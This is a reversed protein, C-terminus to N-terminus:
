TTAYWTINAGSLTAASGWYFRYWGSSNNDISIVAIPLFTNVGGTHLSLIIKPETAFPPNFVVYGNKQNNMVIVGTQLQLQGSPLNKWTPPSTGNSSLYQDQLGSTGNIKFGSLTTLSLNGKINVNATLKGLTVNNSAVFDNTFTNKGKFTQNATLSAGSGSNKGNLLVM